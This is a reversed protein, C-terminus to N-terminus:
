AHSQLESTHEESRLESQLRAVEATADALQQSVTATTAGEEAMKARDAEAAAVTADLESQLRAVEATADALQQSVTATAAGEEAMKARDAEAAAVTADLESQLRAVEATADALQKEHTPSSPAVQPAPTLTPRTNNGQSQLEHIQKQLAEITDGDNKTIQLAKQKWTEMKTHLTGLQEIKTVLETKLNDIIGDKESSPTLQKRQLEQLRINKDKIIIAQKKAIEVVEERSLEALNVQRSNPTHYSPSQSM